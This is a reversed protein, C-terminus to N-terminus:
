AVPLWGRVFITTAHEQTKHLFCNRKLAFLIYWLPMNPFLVAESKFPGLRMRKRGLQFFTTKKPLTLVNKARWLQRSFGDCKNGLSATTPMQSKDSHPYAM